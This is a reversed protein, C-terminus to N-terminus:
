MPWFLEAANIFSASLPILGSARTNSHLTKLRFFGSPGWGRGQGIIAWNRRFGILWVQRYALMEASSRNEVRFPPFQASASITIFVTARQLSVFAAALHRRGRSDVVWLHTEGMEETLVPRSLGAALATGFGGGSGHRSGEGACTGSDSDPGSASTARVLVCERHDDSDGSVGVVKNGRAGSAAALGNVLQEASNFAYVIVAASTPVAQVLHETEDRAAATAAAAAFTSRTAGDAGRGGRLDTM